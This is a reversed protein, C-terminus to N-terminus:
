FTHLYRDPDADTGLTKHHELHSRKGDEFGMFMPGYILWRCFFDKVKRNSNLCSHLGDHGLIFLAYQSFGVIAFVPIAVALSFFKSLCFLSLTIACWGFGLDRVVRIPQPKMWERLQKADISKRIKQEISAISM